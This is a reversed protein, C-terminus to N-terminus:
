IGAQDLEREAQEVARRRTAPAVVSLNDDTSGSTTTAAIFREIAELSTFRKGGVLCTELKVGRVGRQRWRHLTSVHPRGPLSIAANRLSMLHENRIDLM